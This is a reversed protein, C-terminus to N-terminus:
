GGLNVARNGDRRVATDCALVKGAKFRLDDVPESEPEGHVFVVEQRKGTNLMENETFPLSREDMHLSHELFVDEGALAAHEM